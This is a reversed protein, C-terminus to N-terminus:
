WALQVAGGLVDPANDHECTLPLWLLQNILRQVDADTATEFSKHQAPTGESPMHNVELHINQKEPTKLLTLNPTSPSM